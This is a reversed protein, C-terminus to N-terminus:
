GRKVQKRWQRWAVLGTLAFLISFPWWMAALSGMWIPILLIRIFPKLIPHENLWAAAPPSWSYYWSVFKRGWASPLLVRNRFHRLDQVVRNMNSGFAATAIFCNFDKTLLGVVEDPTAAFPCLTGGATGDFPRTPVAPPTVGCNAFISTDSTFFLENGAPDLVSVRFYHDQANSLGDVIKNVVDYGTDTQEITLQKYDAGAPSTIFGTASYYVNVKQLTGMATTPFGAGAEVEDFYIKKDGPYATFGCIGPKPPTLSANDSCHTIQDYDTTGTPDPDLVIIQVTGSDDGTGITGDSNADIGIKFTGTMSQATTRCGPGSNPIYTCINGWTTDITAPSGKSVSSAEIEVTTTDYMLIPRGTATDSTFTIRLRLSSDIRSRNCIQLGPASACGDCPTLGDASTCATVGFGALGGYIIPNTGSTLNSNSAGGVGTIKVAAPSAVSILALGILLWGRIM